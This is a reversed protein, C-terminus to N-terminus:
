SGRCIPWCLRSEVRAEANWLVPNDIWVAHTYVCVGESFPGVDRNHIVPQGPANELRGPQVSFGPTTNPSPSEQNRRCRGCGQPPQRCDGKPRLDYEM